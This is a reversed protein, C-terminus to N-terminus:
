RDDVGQMAIKFPARDDLDHYGVLRVNRQEIPDIQM